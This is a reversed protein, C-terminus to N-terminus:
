SWYGIFWSNWNLKEQLLVLEVHTECGDIDVAPVRGTVTIPYTM